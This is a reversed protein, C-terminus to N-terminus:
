VPVFEGFGLPVALFVVNTKPASEWPSSIFLYLHSMCPKLQQTSSLHHEAGAPSSPDRWPWFKAWREQTKGLMLKEDLILDIQHQHVSSFWCQVSHATEM